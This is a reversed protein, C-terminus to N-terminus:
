ASRGRAETLVAVCARCAHSLHHETIEVEVDWAMELDCLSPTDAGGGPKKGAATLQRIHWPSRGSAASSECFSYDPSPKTTTNM